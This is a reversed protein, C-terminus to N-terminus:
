PVFTSGAGADVLVLESGARVLVINVGYQVQGPASLASGIAAEIDDPTMDRNLLRTAVNLIGDSLITIELDGLVLKHTGQSVPTDALARVGGTSMAVAAALSGTIIERRTPHSGARM